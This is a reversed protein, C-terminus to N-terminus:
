IVNLSELIFVIRGILWAFRTYTVSAFMFGFGWMMAYRGIKATIGIPGKHETTFLFYVIICLGMVIVILNDIPTTKGGILPLMFGQTSVLIDATITGRMAIGSGVGLMLILPYRSMWTYKEPLYRTFVLIGAIAPIIWLFEGNTYIPTLGVDVINKVAVVLFNGLSVGLVAAEVLRYLKNDKYLVLSFVVLTIIISVWLGLDAFFEGNM